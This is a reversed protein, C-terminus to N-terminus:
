EVFFMLDNMSEGIMEGADEIVEVEIASVAAEKIRWWGCPRSTRRQGTFAALGFERKGQLSLLM